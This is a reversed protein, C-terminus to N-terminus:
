HGEATAEIEKLAAKLKKVLEKTQPVTLFLGECINLETEISVGGDGYVFPCISLIEVEKVLPNSGTVKEKKKGM